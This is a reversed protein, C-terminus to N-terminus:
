RYRVGNSLGTWIDPQPSGKGLVTASHDITWGLSRAEKAVHLAIRSGPDSPKRASQRHTHNLCELPVNRADMLAAYYRMTAGCAKLVGDSVEHKLDDHTLGAAKEKRSRWFSRADTEIGAARAQVEIGITSRNWGHGHYVYDTVRHLLTVIVLGSRTEGVHAHAPLSLLRPHDPGLGEAATQHWCLGTVAAVRRTGVARGRAPRESDPVDRLDRVIIGAGRIESLPDVEREWPDGHDREAIADPRVLAAARAAVESLGAIRGAMLSALMSTNM